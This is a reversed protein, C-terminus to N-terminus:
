YVFIVDNKEIISSVEDNSIIKIGESISEQSINSNEIDEHIAYVAGNIENSVWDWSANYESKPFVNEWNSSILYEVASNRLLFSLNMGGEIGLLLTLGNPDISDTTLLTPNNYIILINKTQITKHHHLIFYSIFEKFLFM